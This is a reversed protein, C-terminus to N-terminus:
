PVFTGDNEIINKMIATMLQDATPGYPGFSLARSILEPPTGPVAWRESGEFCCEILGLQELSFWDKLYAHMMFRERDPASHHAFSIFKLDNARKVACAFAAGLACAMCIPQEELALHVQEHDLKAHWSTRDAPSLYLGRRARIRGAALQAIVDKAIRVRQKEPTLKRFRRNRDRFRKVARKPDIPKALAAIM